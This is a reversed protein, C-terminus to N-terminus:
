PVEEQSIVLFNKLVIEVRLTTIAAQVSSKTIIVRNNGGSSPLISEITCTDNNLTLTAGGAYDRNMALRTMANKMCASALAHSRVKYEAELINMRGNSSALSVSLTLMLLIFFMLVISIIAIYGGQPHTM